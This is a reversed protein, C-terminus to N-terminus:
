EEIVRARVDKARTDCCSKDELNGYIADTIKLTKGQPCILRFYVLFVKVITLLTHTHRHMSCLSLSAIEIQKVSLYLNVGSPQTDM